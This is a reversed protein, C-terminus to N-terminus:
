EIRWHSPLDNGADPLPAPRKGMTEAVRAVSAAMIEAETMDRLPKPPQQGGPGRANATPPASQAAPNEGALKAGLMPAVMRELVQHGAQGIDEPTMTRGEALAQARARIATTLIDADVTAGAKKVEELVAESVEQLGEQIEAQSRMLAAEERILRRVEEPDLAPGSPAKAPPPSAPSPGGAPEIASLARVVEIGGLKDVEDAAERLRRLEDKFAEPKKYKERAEKAADVLGAQSAWTFNPKWTSLDENERKVKALEQTLREVEKAADAVVQEGTGGPAAKPPEAPKPEPANAVNAEPMPVGKRAPRPAHFSRYSM